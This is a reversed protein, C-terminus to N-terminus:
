LSIWVYENFFICRFIDDAFHRRYQRPRLTNLSIKYNKWKMTCLWWITMMDGLAGHWYMNSFNFVNHPINWLKESCSKELKIPSSRRTHCYNYEASANKMSYQSIVNFDYFQNADHTVRYLPEVTTSLTWSHRVLDTEQRLKGGATQPHCLFPKTIKQCMRLNRVNAWLSSIPNLDFKTPSSRIPCWLGSQSQDHKWSNWAVSQDLLKRM